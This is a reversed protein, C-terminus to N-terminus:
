RQNIPSNKENLVSKNVQYPIQLLLRERVM